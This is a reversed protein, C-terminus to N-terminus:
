PRRGCGGEGQRRDDAERRPGVQLQQRDERAVHEAAIRAQVTGQHGRVTDPREAPRQQGGCERAHRALPQHEKDTDSDEGGPKIGRAATATASASSTSTPPAVVRNMLAVFVTM